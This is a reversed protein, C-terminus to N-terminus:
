TPAVVAHKLWAVKRLWQCVARMSNAYSAYTLQKHLPKLPEPYPPQATTARGHATQIQGATGAM